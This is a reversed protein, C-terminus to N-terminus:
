KPDSTELILLYPAASIIRSSLSAKWHCSDKEAGSLLYAANDGQMGSEGTLYSRAVAHLLKHFPCNAPM